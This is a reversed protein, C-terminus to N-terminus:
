DRKTPVAPIIMERTEMTPLPAQIVTPLPNEVYLYAPQTLIPVTPPIVMPRNAFAGTNQYDYFSRATDPYYIHGSGRPPPKPASANRNNTTTTTTTTTTTGNAGNGNTGSNGADGTASWAAIVLACFLVGLRQTTPSCSRPTADM